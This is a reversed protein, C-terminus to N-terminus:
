GQVQRINNTAFPTAYVPPTGADPTINVRNVSLDLSTVVVAGIPGEEFTYRAQLGQVIGDRPGLSSVITQIEGQSLERGFFAVDDVSLNGTESQGGTPYGNVFMQGLSGTQQTSVTTNNLVGDIYLRFTSVGDYAVAYHNWVGTPVTYPAIASVLNAGGWTWCGFTNASICGFQMASTPTAPGYVGAISVRDAWVTADNARIWAMMTCPLQASYAFGAPVSSLTGGNTFTQVAM